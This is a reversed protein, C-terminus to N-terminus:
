QELKSSETVEDVRILNETCAAIEAGDFVNAEQVMAWFNLHVRPGVLFCSSNM